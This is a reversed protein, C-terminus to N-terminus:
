KCYGYTNQLTHCLEHFQNLMTALPSLMANCITFNIKERPNTMKTILMNIGCPLTQLQYSLFEIQNGKEISDFNRMKEEFFEVFKKESHCGSKDFFM